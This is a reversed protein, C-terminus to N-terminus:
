GLAANAADRIFEVLLRDSGNCYTGYKLLEEAHEQIRRLNAAARDMADVIAQGEETVSKRAVCETAENFTLKM